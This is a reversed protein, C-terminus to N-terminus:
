KKCAGDYGDAVYLYNGSVYVAYANGPTTYNVVIRPANHNSVYIIRLDGDALYVYNGSVALDAANNSIGCQGRSQPSIPNSIDIVRFTGYDTIYAYNSDVCILAPYCATTDHGVLVPEEPNNINLIRLGDFCTSTVYAYDGRVALDTLVYPTEYSGLLTPEDFVDVIEVARPVDTYYAYNDRVFVSTENANGGYSYWFSPSAPNTINLIEFGDSTIFAKNGDLFIQCNFCNETGYQSITTPHLPNSIDAILLEM